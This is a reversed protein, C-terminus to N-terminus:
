YKSALISSQMKLIPIDALIPFALGTDNSYFAEGRHELYYDTGPITFLDASKPRSSKIPVNIVFCSTPNLPNQSNLIPIIEEVSGGLKDVTKEVNKIYGLRDMRLQAETTSSEYHPEFLVCKDRSVRFLETIINDLQVGNPELAHSSTILDVSNSPLPIELMDAVLPQMEISNPHIENWFNRGLNIRSWSIELNFVKKPKVSARELMLSITWLEGAGVNLITTDDGLHRQLIDGAENTYSKKKEVNAYFGEIYSGAQLDYAVEIALSRQTPYKTGVLDIINLGKSYASKAEMLLKYNM